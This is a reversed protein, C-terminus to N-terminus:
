LRIELLGSCSKLYWTWSIPSIKKIKAVFQMVIILFFVPFMKLSILLHYSHTKLKKKLESKNIKAVEQGRVTLGEAKDERIKGYNILKKVNEKWREMVSTLGTLVSGNRDVIVMVQHVDKGNIDEAGGTCIWKKCTM